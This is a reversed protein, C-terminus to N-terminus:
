YEGVNAVDKLGSTARKRGHYVCLGTGSTQHNTNTPCMPSSPLHEPVQFEFKTAKDSPDQPPPKQPFHEWLERPQPNMSRRHGLHRSSGRSLSSLDSGSLHPPTMSTFFARPRGDATYEGIPPTKVRIAEGGPYQSDVQKRSFPVSYDSMPTSPPTESRLVERVSSAVSSFSEGSEKRHWPAKGFLKRKLKFTGSEDKLWAVANTLSNPTHHSDNRGITSYLQDHEPIPPCITCDRAYAKSRLKAGFSRKVKQYISRGNLPHVSSGTSSSLRPQPANSSAVSTRRSNTRPSISLRGPSKKSVTSTSPHQLSFVHASETM